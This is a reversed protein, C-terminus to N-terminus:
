PDIPPIIIPPTRNILLKQPNYENTTDTDTVKRRKEDRTHTAVLPDSKPNGEADYKDSNYYASYNIKSDLTLVKIMEELIYLTNQGESTFIANSNDVQTNTTIPPQCFNNTTM